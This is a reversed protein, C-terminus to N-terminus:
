RPFEPALSFFGGHFRMKLPSPQKELELLLDVAV